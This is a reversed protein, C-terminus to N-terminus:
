KMCGEITCGYAKLAMPGFDPSPSNKLLSAIAMEAYNSRKDTCYRSKNYNGRYYLNNSTNIVVAQPTSYVGVAEAVGAERWVPIDVDLKERIQEDTYEQGFMIMPVAVFTVHDGYKKVLERFHPLNFRSCPCDPNFFHLFVPKAPDIKLREVISIHENAGVLKYSSPVPTPLSYKYENYWFLTGVAVVLILLWTIIIGKRSIM